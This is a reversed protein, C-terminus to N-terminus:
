QQHCCEYLNTPLYCVQFPEILKHNVCEVVGLRASTEKDFSRLNFPMSGHKNRVESYFMRSAKLKLQYIEDTKKYITCRTDMERG